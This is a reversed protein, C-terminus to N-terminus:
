NLMREAVYRKLDSETDSSIDPKQYSAIRLKYKEAAIEHILKKGSNVWVDYNKRQLLEPLYYEKRFKKFTKPHTLFEGGIGVSKITELDIEEDSFMLPQFMRLLMGIIEEDIIFKEYSMALYSGLIGAAHLIFNSGSRLTTGLAMSSEIAAQADPIYSDSIGGSGRCPIQYMKAIQVQANQIMSLEPAGVAPAGTKMDTITSTGGYVIPNGPQVLQALVIGALFEANQLVITSPVEVPATSGAMLLGGIMNAQGNKTYEILAGAMEASYQLPSLSSIIAIMVPKNKISDESGWTIGAMQFSEKAAKASVSSGVFPKDCLLINSRIMHLHSHNPDIDDPEVMLCGNMNIVNSTQVLKCFNDYDDCIPKRMEGTASIMNCSGYGPILTIHDGGITISKSPNRAEMVFETPVTELAKEVTKSDLYVVEGEVKVGHKKFIALAEDEKFAIGVEKLIWLTAEHIKTLEAKSLEQMRQNM